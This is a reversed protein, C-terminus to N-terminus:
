PKAPRQPGDTRRLVRRIFAPMHPTLRRLQANTKPFRPRTRKIWRLVLPNFAAVTVGVVMLVLGTPLPLPFTIAGVLFVVFGVPLAIWRLLNKIPRPM